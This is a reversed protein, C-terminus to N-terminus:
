CISKQYPWVIIIAPEIKQASHNHIENTHQYAISCLLYLYTHSSSHSEVTHVMRVYSSIGACTGDVECKMVSITDTGTLVVMKMLIFMDLNM